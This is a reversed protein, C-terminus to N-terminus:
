LFTVDGTTQLNAANMARIMALLAAVNRTNDGVGPAFIRGNEIRTTVNTTLPFVTDLHADFVLRKGGGTGRRVAIVNGAADRRVDLGSDRLLAEVRAARDAEHGSPAPIETLERWQAVITDRDSEVHQLARAVDERQMLARAAEVRPTVDYQPEAGAPSTSRCAALLLAMALLRKM